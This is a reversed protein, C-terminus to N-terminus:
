PACAGPLWGDVDGGGRDALGLCLNGRDLLLDIACGDIREHVALHQLDVNVGALEDASRVALWQDHQAVYLLKVDADVDVLM